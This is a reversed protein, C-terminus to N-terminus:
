VGSWQLAESDSNACAPASTISGGGRPFTKQVGIPAPTTRRGAPPRVRRQRRPRFHATSSPPAAAYWRAGGNKKSGTTQAPLLARGSSQLYWAPLARLAAGQHCRHQDASYVCMSVKILDVGSGACWRQFARKLADEDRLLHKPVHVDLLWQPENEFTLITNVCWHSQPVPGQRAADRIRMATAEVTPARPRQMYAHAAGKPCRPLRPSCFRSEQAPIAFPSCHASPRCCLLPRRQHLSTYWHGRRPIAVPIRRHIRVYLSRSSPLHLTHDSYPRRTNAHTHTHVHHARVDHHSERLAFCLLVRWRVGDLSLVCLACASKHPPATQLSTSDIGFRRRWNPM